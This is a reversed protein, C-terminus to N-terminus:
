NNFVQKQLPDKEKIKLKTPQAIIEAGAAAMSSKKKGVTKSDKSASAADAM